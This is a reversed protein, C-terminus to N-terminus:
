TRLSLQGVMGLSPDEDGVDFTLEWKGSTGNYAINYFLPKQDRLSDPNFVELNFIANGVPEFEIEAYTGQIMKTVTSWEGFDVEQKHRQVWISSKSNWFYFAGGSNVLPDATADEVFVETIPKFDAYVTAREAITKVIKIAGQEFFM